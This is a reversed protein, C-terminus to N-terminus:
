ANSRLRVEDLEQALQAIKIILARADVSPLSVKGTSSDLFYPFKLDTSLSSNELLAFVNASGLSLIPALTVPCDFQMGSTFVTGRALETGSTMKSNEKLTYTSESIVHDAGLTVESSLTIAKPLPQGARIHVDGPVAQGRLLKMGGQAKFAGYTTIDAGIVFDGAVTMPTILKIAAATKLKTGAPLDIATKMPNTGTMAVDQALALRLRSTLTHGAPFKVYNAADTAVIGDIFELVTRVNFKIPKNLTCGATTFSYPVTLTFKSPIPRNPAWLSTNVGEIDYPTDLILDNALTFSEGMRLYAISAPDFDELKILLDSTLVVSTLLKILSTTATGATITKDVAAPSNSFRDDSYEGQDLSMNSATGSSYSAYGSGTGTGKTTGATAIKSLISGEPIVFGSVLTSGGKIILWSDSGDNYSALSGVATGSVYAAVAQTSPDFRPLKAGDKFTAGSPILAGAPFHTGAPIPIQFGFNSQADLETGSPLTFSGHLYSQAPISGHPDFGTNGYFYAASGFHTDAELEMGASLTVGMSQILKLLAPLVNGSTLYTTNPPFTFPGRITAGAALHVGGNDTSSAISYSNTVEFDASVTSSTGASILVEGLVQAGALSTSGKALVSGSKLKTGKNLVFDDTVDVDEGITMKSELMSGAPFLAGTLNLDGDTRLGAPVMQYSSSSLGAPIRVRDGNDIVYTLITEPQLLFKAGGRVKSLVLADTISDAVDSTSSGSPIMHGSPLYFGEDVTIPIGMVTGPPLSITYRPTKDYSYLLANGTASADFTGAVYTGVALGLNDPLNSGAKFLVSTSTISKVISYKSPDVVLDQVLSGSVILNPIESLKILRETVPDMFTEDDPATTGSRLVFTEYQTLCAPITVQVPWSGASQTTMATKTVGSVTDTLGEGTYDHSSSGDALYGGGNVIATISGGLLLDDDGLKTDTFTIQDSTILDNLSAELVGSSSADVRYVYSNTPRIALVAPKASNPDVSLSSLTLLQTKNNPVPTFGNTLELPTEIVEGDDPFTMTAATFGRPASEAQSSNTTYSAQGFSANIKELLSM